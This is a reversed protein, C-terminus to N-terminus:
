PKTPTCRFCVDYDCHKCSRAHCSPFKQQCEDCTLELMRHETFVALTQGHCDCERKPCCSVSVRGKCVEIARRCEALQKPHDRLDPQAERLALLAARKNEGGGQEMKILAFHVRVAAIAARTTVAEEEQWPSVASYIDLAEDYADKALRLTELVIQERSPESRKASSPLTERQRLALQLTVDGLRKHMGAVDPHRPDQAPLAARLHHVMSELDPASDGLLLRPVGAAIPGHRTVNAMILRRTSPSVTADDPDVFEYKQVRAPMNNNNDYRGPETTARVAIQADEFAAPPASGSARARAYAKSFIPAAQNHLKSEWCVVVEMGAEARLRDGLARTGCGMLVVERLSGRQVHKRFIAVLTSAEVSELEGDRSVFALVAEGRLLADGHGIFFFLKKGELKEDLTEVSADLMVQASGPEVANFHAEVERAERDVGDLNARTARSFHGATYILYSGRTVTATAAVTHQPSGAVSINDFPSILQAMHSPSTTQAAPSSTILLRSMSDVAM